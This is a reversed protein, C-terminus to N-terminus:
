RWTVSLLAIQRDTYIPQEALRWTVSLLAIQRDTYIPQETIEM